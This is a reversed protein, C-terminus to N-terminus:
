ESNTLEYALFDADAQPGLWDALGAHHGAICYALIRGIAKGLAEEVLNAGPASHEQKGAKTELHAEEDYGSKACTASGSKPVRGLEHSIGEAYGWPGSDFAAAFREALQATHLLHEELGQPEAWSGEKNRRVHAIPKEDRTKSAEMVKRRRLPRGGCLGANGKASTSLGFSGYM